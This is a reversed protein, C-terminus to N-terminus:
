RAYIFRQKIASGFKYPGIGIEGTAGLGVSIRRLKWKTRRSEPTSLATMIEHDIGQKTALLTKSYEEQSLTGLVEESDGNSGIVHIAAHSSSMIFLFTFIKIV